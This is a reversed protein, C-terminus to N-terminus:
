CKQFENLLEQAHKILEIGDAVESEPELGYHDSDGYVTSLLDGITKDNDGEVLLHSFVVKNEDPNTTLQNLKINIESYLSFFSFTFDEVTVTKNILKTLLEIYRIKNEIHLNIEMRSLFTM